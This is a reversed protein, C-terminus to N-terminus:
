WLVCNLYSSSQSNVAQDAIVAMHLATNGFSDQLNPDAGNDILYDYIDMYGFCVAFALPYEGYYAYGSVVVVTVINLMQRTHAVIFNKCGSM